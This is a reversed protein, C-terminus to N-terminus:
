LMVIAYTARFVDRLAFALVVWQVVQSTEAAQTFVLWDACAVLPWVLYKNMRLRFRMQASCIVLLAVRTSIQRVMMFSVGYVTLLAASYLRHWTRTTIKGKRVLTMMFAAVHVPMMSTFCVDTSAFVSATAGLQSVAYFAHLRKIIKTDADEPFPMGRITSEKRERDGYLDSALDAFTITALVTLMGLVVNEQTGLLISIAPRLSFVIAHARYEAWIMPLSAHRKAPVVFVLSSLSLAIPFFLMWMSYEERFGMSGYRVLWYFRLLYHLLTVLGLLFHVHLPDHHTLFHAM